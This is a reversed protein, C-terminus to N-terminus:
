DPQWSDAPFIGAVYHMWELESTDVTTRHGGNVSELVIEDPRRVVLEKVMRRGDKAAVVVFNGPTCEREPEVVVFWGSRIAPHMSDGKVRLAYASDSALYGAIWGDGYGPPHGLEEYLGDMGVGLRATGVVPVRRKKNNLVPHYDGVNSEEGLDSPQLPKGRILLGSFVQKTGDGTALWNPDVNLFKAARSNNEATFSKSLGHEVKRVAQYSLGLHNALRTTDCAADRMAESLRDQYTSAVVTAVTGNESTEITTCKESSHELSGGHPLGCGNFQESPGDGGCGFLDPDAILGDVLPGIHKWVTDRISHPSDQSALM